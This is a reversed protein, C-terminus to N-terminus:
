NDRVMTAEALKKALYHPEDAVIASTALCQSAVFVFSRSWYNVVAFCNMGKIDYTQYHLQKGNAELPLMNSWNYMPSEDDLFFFEMAEKVDSFATLRVRNGSKQLGIGIWDFGSQKILVDHKFHTARYRYCRALNSIDTFIIYSDGCSIEGDDSVASVSFLFIM